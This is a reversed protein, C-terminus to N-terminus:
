RGSVVRADPPMVVRSRTLIGKQRGIGDIRHLYGTDHQLGIRGVVAWQGAVVDALRGVQQEPVDRVDVALVPSPVAIRTEDDGTVPNNDDIRQSGRLEPPAQQGGNGTDGVLRHAIDDDRM